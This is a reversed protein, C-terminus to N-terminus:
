RGSIWLLCFRSFYADAKESCCVLAVPSVPIPRSCCQATLSFPLWFLQLTTSDPLPSFHSLQAVSSLQWASPFPFPGALALCELQTKPSSRPVSIFLLVSWSLRVKAINGTLAKIPPTCHSLCPSVLDSRQSKELFALVTNEGWVLWPQSCCSKFSLLSLLLLHDPVNKILPPLTLSALWFDPGQGWVSYTGLARFM